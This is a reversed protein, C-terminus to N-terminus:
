AHLIEELLLKWQHRKNSLIFHLAQAPVFIAKLSILFGNLDVECMCQIQIFFVLNHSCQCYRHMDFHLFDLVILKHEYPNVLYTIVFIM